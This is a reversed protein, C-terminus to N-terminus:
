RKGMRDFDVYRARISKEGLAWAAVARHHGDHILNVGDKRIVIPLDILGGHKESRLGAPVEGGNDIYQEVKPLKVSRQIAVLSSVPVEREPAREIERNIRRNSYADKYAGRDGVPFPHRVGHESPRLEAVRRRASDGTGAAVWAALNGM